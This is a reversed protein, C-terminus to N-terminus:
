GILTAIFDPKVAKVGWAIAVEYAVRHYQRYLAIHFALGSRPDTVTMVDDAADGGIPMAPARTVLHIASREFAVNPTYDNGVTVANSDPMAVLLGPKGVSFVGGSLAANVVYKNTSDAAYTVVDGALITGSGTDVAISTEGVPEGGNAVYSTGTGKTHVSIQASERVAFGLLDLLIGQRLLSDGGGENAKYLNSLQRLNVGAATDIVLQLANLPAGNDALIRRLEAVEDMNSGFPTTGATGIARSAGQYAAAALDTEIENCLTRMAQAFLDQLTKQFLGTNGFGKQEEGEWYFPVSRSKTISMTDTPITFASPDPGTAAPAIDGASFSGVIPYRITENKAAREASSNRFVAPIFGVLERAVQDLALYITPILNTLTNAM